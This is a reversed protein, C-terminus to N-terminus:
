GNPAIAIYGVYFEGDFKNAAGGAEVVQSFHVLFGRHDPIARQDLGKVGTMIRMANASLLGTIVIPRTGPLFPRSYYHSAFFSLNATNIGKVHGVRISLGNDRAVGLVDYFGTIMNQYLWDDNGIMQNLKSSFIPEVEGWNLRKYTAM